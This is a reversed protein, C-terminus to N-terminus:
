VVSLVTCAYYYVFCEKFSIAILLHEEKRSSYFVSEISHKKANLFEFIYISDHPLRHLRLFSQMVFVFVVLTNNFRWM